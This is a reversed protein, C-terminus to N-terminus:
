LMALVSEVEEPKILLKQESLSFERNTAILGEDRTVVIRNPTAFLLNEADALFSPDLKKERSGNKYQFLINFAIHAHFLRFGPFHTNFRILEFFNHNYLLKEGENWVFKVNYAHLIMPLPFGWWKNGPLRLERRKAILCKRVVAIIETEPWNPLESFNQQIDDFLENALKRHKEVMLGRGQTRENRSDLWTKEDFISFSKTIGSRLSREEAMTERCDIEQFKKNQITRVVKNLYADPRSLFHDVYKEIKNWHTQARDKGERPSLLEDLVTQTIVTKCIKEKRFTELRSFFSNSERFINSDLILTLKPM